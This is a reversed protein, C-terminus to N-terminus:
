KLNGEPRERHVELIDRDIGIIVNFSGYGFPILDIIFTHGELELRCGRIIKNTEVKVSSAIKIEYNLSIVSPKMNILPLFNTSIFSYDASSDFKITAFHDNLSFTGTVVNPDQPAEAVGLAFARGLVRNKNNRQNTNGKITLVHNSCNGGSTPAGNMRQCNRKFYDLDGCEFCTPRPQRQGQGQEPTTLAFNKGTRQRKNRDYRGRNRNQDNSRKKNGTYGDIDSGVMKHNWFQSELKKVEDDPCYEETGFFEKAGSARFTKISCSQAVDRQNAQNGGLAQILQTLLNPLATNLQRTVEDTIKNYPNYNNTTNRCPRGVM